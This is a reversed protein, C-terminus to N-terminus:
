HWKMLARVLCFGACAPAVDASRRLFFFGAWTPAVDVAGASDYWTLLVQMRHHWTLLVWALYLGAFPPAIDTAGVVSLAVDDVVDAPNVPYIGEVLNTMDAMRRRSLGAFQPVNVGIWGRTIISRWRDGADARM